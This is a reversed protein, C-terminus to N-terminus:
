LHLVRHEKGAVDAQLAADLCDGLLGLGQLEVEGFSGDDVVCHEFLQVVHHALPLAETLSQSDDAEIAM